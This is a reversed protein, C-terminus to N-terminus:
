VVVNQPLAALLQAIVTPFYRHELAQVKHAIDLPADTPEVTCRAQFVIDGEDYHENAYHITIGTEAEKAAYVATHVHMGYMGKGGFAPLLAPHINVIRRPFARILVPPVLLLFGALVVFNIRHAQLTALVQEGDAFDKRAFVATPVGHHSAIALVGAEARNSVVLAVCAQESHAFHEMINRANSGTGSAFIAIRHM